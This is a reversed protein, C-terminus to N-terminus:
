VTPPQTLAGPVTGPRNHQTHKEFEQADSKAAGLVKNMHKSTTTSRGYWSYFVHVTGTAKDRAAYYAHGYGVLVTFRDLEEIAMSNAKGTTKGNIFDSILTSNSKMRYGVIFV